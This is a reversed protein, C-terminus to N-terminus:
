FFIIWYMYLMLMFIFCKPSLMLGLVHQCYPRLPEFCYCFSSQSHAWRYGCMVYWAMSILIYLDQLLLYNENCNCCPHTLEASVMQPRCALGLSCSSTEAQGLAGRGWLLHPAVAWATHVSCDGWCRQTHRDLAWGLPARTWTILPCPTSM